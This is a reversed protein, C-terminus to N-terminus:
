TYLVCNEPLHEKLKEANKKTIRNGRINIYQLRKLSFLPSFDKIQNKELFISELNELEVVKSIDKIKNDSLFLQELTKSYIIDDLREIGVHVLSLRTLSTLKSFDLSSIDLPNNDLTLRQLKQCRNLVSINSILNHDLYLMTLKDLYEGSAIKSIKNAGM